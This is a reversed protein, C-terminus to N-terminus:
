QKLKSEMVLKKVTSDNFFEENFIEEMMKGINSIQSSNYSKDSPTAYRSEWMEKTRPDTVFNVIYKLRSKTTNLVSERILKCLFFENKFNEGFEEGQLDTRREENRYSYIYTRTIDEFFSKKTALNDFIYKLFENSFHVNDGRGYLSETNFLHNYVDNAAIQLKSKSGTVLANEIRKFFQKESDNMNEPKGILENKVDTVEKGLFGAIFKYSDIMKVKKAGKTNMVIEYLENLYDTDNTQYVRLYKEIDDKNGLKKDRLEGKIEERILKHYNDDFILGHFDWDVALKLLVSLKNNINKIDLGILTNNNM